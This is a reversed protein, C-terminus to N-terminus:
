QRVVRYFRWPNLGVDTDRIIAPLNPGTVNTIVTWDLFNTTSEVRNTRGRQGPFTFEFTDGNYTVGSILPPPAQVADMVTRWNNISTSFDQAGGGNYFENV